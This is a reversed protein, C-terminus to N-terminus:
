WGSRGNGSSSGGWSSGGGGSSGGSDNARDRREREARERREQEERERRQREEEARRKRSEEAEAEAIASAARHYAAEAHRQASGYDGRSLASRASDLEGSGPSGSIYVGYSGSWNTAERVKSGASSIASVAQEAAQIEGRLTGAAQGAAATVTDAARDVANWDGHETRYAREAATAEGTLTELTRFASTIAPSDAVQDNAARRAVEGASELARRAAELSRGAEAHADRDNRTAVWVKQLKARAEDLAAAAKFPDGQAAKVAKRAGELATLAATYAALTPKMTRPDGAVERDYEARTGDLATLAAANAAVAADLRELKDKIEELRHRAADQHADAQDLLSAAELLRGAKFATVAKDTKQAAADMDARAEAPNDEVTGNANPHTADGAGLTLVSGAFRRKIEDLLVARQPALTELGAGEARRAAVTDAHKTLSALTGSVIGAAESVLANGAKLAGDAKALEGQGLFAATQDAREAATALRDSPDANKERLTKDAALGLAEGVKTRASGVSATVKAIGDTRLAALDKQIRGAEFANRHLTEGSAKLASLLGVADKDLLKAAAAEAAGSLKAEAKGLWDAAIGAGTLAAAAARSGALVTPRLGEAWAALAAADAAIRSGLAGDGDLGGVPDKKVTERARELASSAAPLATAGVSPLLFLGDAAGATQLADWATKAASIAESVAALKPGHGTVAEELRALDAAAAQSRENFAAIVENFSKKFPEYAKLDGYLDEQWTRKAGLVAEVGDQPKFEIPEDQLRRVAAQYRSPWFLNVVWGWSLTKPHVLARVQDHINQAASLLIKATGANVRISASLEASKGVWGRAKPGSEAGVYTDMKEDLGDIVAELKKDLATDWSAFLEEAKAGFRAARRNLWFAGGLTLLNALAILIWTWLRKSAAEAAAQEVVSEGASLSQKAQELRAAYDASGDAYAEVAAALAQRASVVDQPAASAYPHGALAALRAEAAKLRDAGGAFAALAGEHARAQSLVSGAASAAAAPDTAALREAAKLEARWADVAPRALDGAAKPRSERFAAASRDAGDVAARAEAVSTQARAHDQEFASARALANQAASVPGSVAELAARAQGGGLLKDAKAAASRLAAADPWRQAAYAQPHKARFAAGERELSAALTKASAVAAKADTQEAAIKQELLATVNRVTGDVAGVIDGSSRLAQVAWRDLNGKFQTQGDLGRANYADGTRLLLIRQGMILTLVAGDREGTLPNVQNLIGEKKYLGQGTAFDVAADGYHTRGEADTYRLGSADQVLVVTWHKGSLSRALRELEARGLGVDGIVVVRTAPDFRALADQLDRAQLVTGQEVRAPAEAQAVVLTAVPRSAQLAVGADKAVVAAPNVLALGLMLAAAWRRLSFRARSAGQKVPTAEAVANNSAAPAGLELGLPAPAALAAHAAFPVAAPVAADARAARPTPAGLATAAAASPLVANPLSPTVSPLALAPASPAFATPLAAPAAARPAAKPAATASRVFSQAASPQVALLISAALSLPLKMMAPSITVRTM